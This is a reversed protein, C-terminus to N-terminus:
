KNKSPMTRLKGVLRSKEGGIWSLSMAKKEESKSRSKPVLFYQVEGHCAMNSASLSALAGGGVNKETSQFFRGV